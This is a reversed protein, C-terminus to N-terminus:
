VRVVNEVVVGVDLRCALRAPGPRECPRGGDVDAVRRRATTRGGRRLSRPTGSGPAGGPRQHLPRRLDRDRGVAGAATGLAGAAPRQLRPLGYRRRLLRRGPSVPT